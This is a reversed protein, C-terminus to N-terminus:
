DLRVPVRKLVDRWHRDETQLMARFEEPSQAAADLTLAAFREKLEPSQLAKNIERNLLAVVERPMGGPGLVGYWQFTVFDKVGSELFTPVSPLLPHRQASTIGLVKLRGTRVFTVAPPLANLVLPIQGAVADAISPGGGKYPVHNLTLGTRLRLLEYALHSGSAVGASGLALNQTQARTMGLLEKLTNAAFSPHALLAQPSTAVLAIPTFDKLADYRPQAYVLANITHPVDSLILTHGDPAARAVIETGIMSAAGPRNDVVFTQGLAEGLKQGIARGTIDSGGGPAYPVVLRVPRNPYRDAAQAPGSPATSLVALAALGVLISKM